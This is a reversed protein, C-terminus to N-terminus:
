AAKMKFANKAVNNIQSVTSKILYIVLIKLDPIHFLYQSSKIPTMTLIIPWPLKLVM